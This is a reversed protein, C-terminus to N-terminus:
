VLGVSSTSSELRVYVSSLLSRPAVPGCACQLWCVRQQQQGSGALPARLRQRLQQQEPRCTHAASSGRAWGPGDSSSTNCARM